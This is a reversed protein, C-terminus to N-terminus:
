QSCITRNITVLKVKASSNFAKTKTSTTFTFGLTMETGSTDGFPIAFSMIVTKLCTKKVCVSEEM